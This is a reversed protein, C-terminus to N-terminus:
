PCWVADGELILAVQFEVALVLLDRDPLARVLDELLLLLHGHFSRHVYVQGRGSADDVRM